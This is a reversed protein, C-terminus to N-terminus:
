SIASVDDPENNDKQINSAIASINSEKNQPAGPTTLDQKFVKMAAELMDENTKNSPQVLNNLNKSSHRALAQPVEHAMIRGYFPCGRFQAPMENVAKATRPNPSSDEVM